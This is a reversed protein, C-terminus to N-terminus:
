ATPVADEGLRARVPTFAFVKAAGAEMLAEAACAMTAGTTMVDDVLLFRGGRVAGPATVRYAGRLNETREARTDFRAQPKAHRVRRLAGEECLPAKFHRALALAIMEAQNYGRRLERWANMPMPLVQADNLKERLWPEAHPLALHLLWDALYPARQYKLRRVIMGGPGQYPFVSLAETFSDPLDTCDTCRGPRTRGTVVHHPSAGCHQCRDELSLTALISLCEDCLISRPEELQPHRPGLPAACAACAPPLLTAILPGLM